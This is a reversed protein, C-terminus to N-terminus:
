VTVLAVWPLPPQARVQWVWMWVAAAFSQVDAPTGCGMGKRVPWVSLWPLPCRFRVAAWNVASQALQWAWVPVEGTAEAGSHELHWVSALGVTTAVPAPVQRDQWAPAEPRGLPGVPVPKGLMAPAWALCMFRAM